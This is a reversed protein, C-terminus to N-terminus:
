LHRTHSKSSRYSVKASTINTIPTTEMAIRHTSSWVCVEEHQDALRAATLDEAFTCCFVCECDPVNNKKDLVLVLLIDIVRLNTQSQLDPTVSKTWVGLENM